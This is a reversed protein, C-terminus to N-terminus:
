QHPTINLKLTVSKVGKPDGLTMDIKGCDTFVYHQTLMMNEAIGQNHTMLKKAAMLPKVLLGTRAVLSKKLVAM